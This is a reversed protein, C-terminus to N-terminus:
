ILLNDPVLHQVHEYGLCKREQVAYRMLFKAGMYVAYGRCSGELVRLLGQMVRRPGSLVALGIEWWPAPSVDADEQEPISIADCQSELPEPSIHELGIARCGQTQPDSSM